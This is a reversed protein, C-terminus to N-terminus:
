RGEYYIEDYTLSNNVVYITVLSSNVKYAYDYFM